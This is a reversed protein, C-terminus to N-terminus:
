PTLITERAKRLFTEALESPQRYDEAEYRIDVGKGIISAGDDYIWFSLDRSALKAEVVIESPGKSISISVDGVSPPSMLEILEKTLGLQFEDM